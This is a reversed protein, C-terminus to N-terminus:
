LTDHIGRDDRPEEAPRSPLLKWEASAFALHEGEDRFSSRVRRDACRKEETRLSDLRVHTVHEGLEFEVVRGLIVTAHERREAVQPRVSSPQGETAAPLTSPSVPHRPM